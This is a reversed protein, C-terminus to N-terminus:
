LWKCSPRWIQFQVRAGIPRRKHRGPLRSNPQLSRFSPLISVKATICQNTAILNTESTILSDIKSQRLAELEKATAIATNLEQIMAKKERITEENRAEQRNLEDLIADKERLIESNKTDQRKKQDLEEELEKVHNTSAALKLAQEELMEDRGTMTALYALDRQRANETAAQAARAADINAQDFEHQINELSTGLDELRRETEKVQGSLTDRENKLVNWTVTRDQAQFELESVMAQAAELEQQLLRSKSKEDRLPRESEDCRIELDRCIEGVMRVVSEHRYSADRRLERVLDTRWDHSASQIRPTSEAEFFSVKSLEPTLKSNGHHRCTAPDNSLKQMKELLNTLTLTDLGGEHSTTHLASTLLIGITRQHFRVLAEVYTLPCVDSEAHGQASYMQPTKLAFQQLLASVEYRSVAHRVAGQFDLSKPIIAIMISVLRFANDVRVLRESSPLQDECALRMLALLTRDLNTKKM